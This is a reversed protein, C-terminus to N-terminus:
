VEYDIEKIKKRKRGPVLKLGRYANNYFLQYCIGNMILAMVVDIVSHQKLFMTSLIISVTLIRIFFLFYKNKRVRENKELAIVCAMSYFVHLSPLINTATDIHYLLSVLREFVNDASIVPRLIQGNPYFYSILLFVIMGTLLTAFLKNYEAEKENVFLFYLVTAAVYLFWLFYPVIFYECFPIMDDLKCHIIHITVRRHELVFFALLYLVGICVLKILNQYKHVRNM